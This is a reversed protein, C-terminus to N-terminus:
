NWGKKGDKGGLRNPNPHTQSGKIVGTLGSREKPCSAPAARAPPLGPVGPGREAAGGPLAAESGPLRRSFVCAQLLWLATALRCFAAERTCRSISASFAEPKACRRQAERLEKKLLAPSVAPPVRAAATAQLHLPVKRAAPLAARGGAGPGRRPWARRPLRLSAGSRRGPAARPAALSSLSSRSGGREARPPAERWKRGAASGLRARAAAMGIFPRNGMLRVSCYRPWPSTIKM